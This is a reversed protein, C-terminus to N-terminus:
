SICLFTHKVRKRIKMCQITTLSIHHMAPTVTKSQLTNDNHFKCFIKLKIIIIIIISFNLNSLLSEPYTLFPNTHKLGAEEPPFDKPMCPVTLLLGATGTSISFIISSQMTHKKGQKSIESM